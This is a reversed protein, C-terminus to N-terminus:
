PVIHALFGVEAIWEFAAGFGCEIGVGVCGIGVNHETLIINLWWKFLSYIGDFM